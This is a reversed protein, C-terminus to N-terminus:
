NNAKNLRDARTLSHSLHCSNDSGAQRMVDSLGAVPYGPCSAQGPQPVALLDGRFNLRCGLQSVQFKIDPQVMLGIKLVILFVLGLLIKM